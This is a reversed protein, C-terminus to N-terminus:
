LMKTEFASSLVLSKPTWTQVFGGPVVAKKMEPPIPMATIPDRSVLQLVPGFWNQIQEKPTGKLLLM